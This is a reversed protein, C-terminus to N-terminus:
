SCPSKRPLIRTSILRYVLALVFALLLLQLARWAMHDAVARGHQEADTLTGGALNQVEDGELADRTEALLTRLETAAVTLRDAAQTYDQIDFPRTPQSDASAEGGQGLVSITRMTENWAEGARAVSEGSKNLSEIMATANSIATNMADVTQRTEALTSRLNAQQSDIDQMALVFQERMQQPLTRATESLSTSSDALTKFSDLASVVSEREELDYWLLEMQWRTQLPMDEVIQSFQSATTNFDSIAQAGADIGELARFPAMPITTVWNFNAPQVEAGSTARGESLSFTGRIPHAETYTDIEQRLTKLQTENLFRSGVRFIDAELRKAAEIAVAQQDAFLAAGDTGPGQLYKRMQVTLTARM